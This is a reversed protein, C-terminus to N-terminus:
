PRYDASSLEIPQGHPTREAAQKWARRCRELDSASSLGKAAVLGELAALWHLYYTEGTDADGAGQALSIQQALATAWEPWSFVGARHLTLVMAFAQAQWPEAFVRERDELPLKALPAPM